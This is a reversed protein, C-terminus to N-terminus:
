QGVGYYTFGQAEIFQPDYINRGDVIVPSAMLKKLRGYDPSSYEDWETLLLIADSETVAEYPCTYSILQEEAPYFSKLNDLAAPDHVKVLCNQSLLADIVKLSPANDISATDPKFSVGWIAISRGALDCDYHQWLKRFPLEKQKENEALITSLLKNSHHKEAMLGSLGEIYQSFQLGGFGCGPNLYHSGIRQDSAMVERIVNVDVDLQDSLNAIENIYGLRLALMGTIAFKAFEAERPSMQIWHTSSHCFPKLLVNVMRVAWDNVSGLVLTEPHNFMALAKGEALMDPMYVMCQNAALNLRQQLQDTSGVGFNSLNIMLLNTPTKQACREITQQAIAFLDPKFALLHISNSGGEEKSSLCLRGNEVQEDLLEQLGPENSAKQSIALAETDSEPHPVVKVDNGQQALSAAAVWAILENGWVTIHM